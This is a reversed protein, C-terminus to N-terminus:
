INAESEAFERLKKLSSAKESSNLKKLIEEVVKDELVSGQLNSVANPNKKYFDVIQDFYQPNQSAQKFIAKNLDEETLKMKEFKAYEAFILGLKVRREALKKYENKLDEEKKDTFDPTSKKIELARQWITDFEKQVMINPLDLKISNDLNDFLEKRMKTSVINTYETELIEKVKEKLKTLSEFGMKKAYEENIIVKELELVEHVKVEFEAKKSALDKAHYNEPFKVKIVKEDGPKTGVLQEEFNDIFSKSGLELQHNNAAGGDFPTGNIKGLFDIKIADGLKAKREKAVPVFSKQSSIILDLRENIDNEEIKFTPKDLKIKTFDPLSIKPIIELSLNCAIKKDNFETVEIKPRDVLQFNNKNVIKNSVADILQQFVEQMVSVNYKQEIIKIPVKGQRFGGIKAEKAIKELKDQKVSNVVLGDIEFSYKAITPEQEKIIYKIEFESEAGSHKPISITIIENKEDQNKAKASVSM